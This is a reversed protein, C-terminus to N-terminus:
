VLICTTEDLIPGEYRQDLTHNVSDAAAKLNLKM